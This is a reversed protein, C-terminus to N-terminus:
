NCIIKVVEVSENSDPPAANVVVTVSIREEPRRRSGCAATARQLSSFLVMQSRLLRLPSAAADSYFMQFWTQPSM